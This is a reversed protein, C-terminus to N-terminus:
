LRARLVLDFRTVDGGDIGNVTVDSFSESIQFNYSAEAGVSLHYTLPVDVGVGMPIGAQSSSHMVSASPGSFHFDYYGIGGFVYPHVFSLPATLRIAATGASGLYGGSSSVSSQASDYTGLYRGELALWSLLEIGALIGWGPGASTVSGVGNGFGFPGSENMASVGVALGLELEPGTWPRERCPGMAFWHDRCFRVPDDPAVNQAAASSAFLAILVGVCVSSAITRVRDARAV